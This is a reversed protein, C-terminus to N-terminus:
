HAAAFPPCRVNAQRDRPGSKLNNPLSRWQEAHVWLEDGWPGNDCIYYYHHERLNSRLAASPREVTLVRFRYKHFAFNALVAEEAGEVDLSLYDITQPAHFHDLVDHLAVTIGPEDRATHARDNQTVTICPWGKGEAAGKGWCTKRATNGMGQAVIGSMGDLQIGPKWNGEWRRYQVTTDSNSSVIAGAVICTRRRALEPLAAVNGDLCLGRWGFDRELARTNSDSIPKNAAMDVFFGSPGLIEQVRHDQGNQSHWVGARDTAQDCVLQKGLTRALARSRQSIWTGNGTYREVHLTANEADGGPCHRSETSSLLMVVASFIM